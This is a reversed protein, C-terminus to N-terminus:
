WRSKADVADAFTTWAETTDTALETQANDFIGQLALYLEQREETEIFGTRTDIHNMGEALDHGLAPMVGIWEERPAERLTTVIADRTIRFQALAHAYTRASIHPRGDWVRLPNARNEEVWGPPRAGRVELLTGHRVERRWLRRTAEAYDAPVSDLSLAELHPVSEPTLCDQATMGFLNTLAVQTLHASSNLRASNRLIGLDGELDLHRLEPFREVVSACDLDVIGNVHLQRVDLRAPGALVDEFERATLALRSPAPLPGRNGAARWRAHAVDTGLQWYGFARPMAAAVAPVPMSGIVQVGRPLQWPCRVHALGRAAYVPRADRVDDLTGPQEGVWDLELVAILREGADVHTIQGASWGGLVESYGTVVAGAVPRPPAASRKGSVM